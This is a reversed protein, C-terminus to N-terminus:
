QGAAVNQSKLVANDTQRDRLVSLYSLALRNNYNEYSKQAWRIAGDLDGNIESIIAMNYCARGALKGNTNATEQQWIEGAGQWNGSRAKRMALKFNPDGAVFYYRSVRIWYPLIRDAYAQGAKNGVQKVAEKKGTLAAVAAVPNIGRGSFTIDKTMIYEDLINRSSPDYIRWGTKVSTVMNVQNGIGPINGVLTNVLAPSSAASIKSETDFLELVFLADTGAERCIREVTDWELSSPFVGAGFSRLDINNVAKVQTFRNNKMLEDALGNVSARSGEIQLDASELSLVRHIADITKNQDSARSRNVVGVTKITAPITVPAPETVSLSMLNTTTCSYGALTIIVLLAFQSKM